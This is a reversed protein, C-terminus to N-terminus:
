PAEPVESFSAKSLITALTMAALGPRVTVTV